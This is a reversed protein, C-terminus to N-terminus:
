YRVVDVGGSTERSAELTTYASDGLWSAPGFADGQFDPSAFIRDLTVLSPDRQQAGLPAAVLAAVVTMLLLRHRSVPIEDSSPDRNPVSRRSAIVPRFARCSSGIRLAGRM